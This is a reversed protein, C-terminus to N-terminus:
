DMDFVTRGYLVNMLKVPLIFVLFVYGVLRASFGVAKSIIIGM